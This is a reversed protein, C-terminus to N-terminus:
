TRGPLLGREEMEGVMISVLVPAKYKIIPEAPPDRMMVAVIWFIQCTKSWPM